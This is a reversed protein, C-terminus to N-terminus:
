PQIVKLRFFANASTLPEKAQWTEVGGSASVLVADVTPAGWGGLDTSVEVSCTVDTRDEPRTYTYIWHTADATVEPLGATNSTRPELGLAYEVLNVYGDGDPDANPGSVNADALEPPTFHGLKWSDFDATAAFSHDVPTAAEYTDDGAQSARVTVTGTGTLTLESGTLNAPGTVLSFSVALGSTASANLTIPATSFVQDAPGTFSITQTLKSITLAAVDSIVSGAANTVVVDYNGADGPITSGITFTSDTATAIPSASKRWQYSLPATGTATVTFTTSEGVAATQSQPQTTIVPLVGTTGYRGTAAAGFGLTGEGGVARVWYYYAQGAVGTLDEFYTGDVRDAILTATAPDNTGSRGIQYHIAGRAPNWTLSVRDAASSNSATAHTFDLPLGLAGSAILVPTTRDTTSGDGLQGQDNAGCAWLTGDAKTFYTHLLGAAVTAVGSAIQVPAPRNLLSGDGLQGHDNAGMGWLTGDAKLFLSHAFGAAVASVQSAVPVPSLRNVTSGDGLQGSTNYGTSWLTGDTKLILTHYTGAAASRVNAAIAVPTFSSEVGGNGFQGLGNYGMAWATGDGRVFVSHFYGADAGVVHTAVPVPSLRNVTSGDGLQGYQNWGAAWLTGDNKRYLSHRHGATAAAVNGAIQVATYKSIASGDGLTGFENYGRAWLTGDQKVYFGHDSGAESSVVQSAAAVPLLHPTSTGDGLQGEQNRGMVHLVGNGDVYQGFSYGGAAAVPAIAASISMTAAESVVMGAVNSVVCRFQDGHNGSLTGGYLILTPTTVGGYAQNIGPDVDAWGGGGAPLRQWRYSPVPAGSAAVRFSTPAALAVTKSQPQLTIVPATSPMVALAAPNSTDSGAVNSVEVSYDGADAMQVIPISYTSQTAGGIPVDNKRWQYSTAANSTVTVTFTVSEGAYVSQSQPPMTITPAIAVALTAVESMVSGASNTVVVQYSGVDGIQFNPISLTMSTAGALDAGDKQWQYYLAAPSSAAVTFIAESGLLLGQSAPQLTIVPLPVYVMLLAANSAVPGAANTAVCRFQDGNMAVTLSSITLTGTTVGAYTGGNNLDSWSASGNPMRQWRYGPAPTGSAAATFTAAAGVGLTRNVPQLTILPAIPNLTLLAPNSAVSGVLNTAVSRYYDGSMAWSTSFVTLVPTGAGGYSGGDYVDMWMGTGAPLCQWRYSPAPTGSSAVSFQAGLGVTITQNAPHSTFSPAVNVVEPTFTLNLVIIGSEAGWGDVAISYATGAAAAFSVSSYRIVSPDVDDSTGITNLANVASGTYVGMLTDFHSYQTTITMSGNGPATWKWWVSAGGAGDGPDHDPEGPEKTAYYSQGNVQLSGSSHTITTANAFNNNGPPYNQGPALYFSQAGTIDDATLHDLDSAHSNMLAEVSQGQEDPHSLGLVHGLEHTVVRRFDEAERLPGSYSDWTYANNFIIDAEFIQRISPTTYILTVALVGEGFADGEITSDFYIDNEYDVQGGVPETQAYFQVAGLQGNWIQMGAQASSSYHSGDSLVPTIGVKVKMPIYGPLWSSQSSLYVYGSASQAMALILGLRALWRMVSNKM